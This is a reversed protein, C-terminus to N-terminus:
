FPVFMFLMILSVQSHLFGKAFENHSRYVPLVETFFVILVGAVRLVCGLFEDIM